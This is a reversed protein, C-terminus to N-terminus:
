NDPPRDTAIVATDVAPGNGVSGENQALLFFSYLGTWSFLRNSGDTITDILVAGQWVELSMDAATNSTVNMVLTITTYTNVPPCTPATSTATPSGSVDPGYVVVSCAGGTYEYFVGASPELRNDTTNDYSAGTAQAWGVASYQGSFGTLMKVRFSLM